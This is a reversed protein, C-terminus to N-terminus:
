DLVGIGRPEVLRRIGGLLVSSTDELAAETYWDPLRSQRM